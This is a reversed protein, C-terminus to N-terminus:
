ARKGEMRAILEDACALYAKAGKSSRDYVVGPKGYSPAEALRVNHPIITEFFMVRLLTIIRLSKNKEAHVRRVSGVLDTLGELAFYECQMPIVVGDAACLANMTMMSLSPPCDILVYDYRDRVADLVVRLRADRDKM